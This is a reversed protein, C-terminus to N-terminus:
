PACLSSDAPPFPDRLMRVFGSLLLGGRMEAPLHPAILCLSVTANSRIRGDSDHHLKTLAPVATHALLSPNLKPALHVLARASHERISPTTSSFGKVFHPWIQKNLVEPSVRNMYSSANELLRYHLLRDPTAYLQVLVPSVYRAFEAEEVVREAIGIIPGLVNALVGIQLSEMLKRLLHHVCYRLPFGAVQKSLNDLFSERQSLEMMAMEEAATITQVYCSGTIFEAGDMFRIVSHRVRPSLATLGTFSAQLTRPLHRFGRMEAMSTQRVRQVFAEPDGPCSCDEDAESCGHMHSSSSSISSNSNNNNNNHTSNSPADRVLGLCEYILCAMGWADVLTAFSSCAATESRKGISSNNTHLEPPVHYSLLLSPAVQTYWAFEDETESSTTPVSVAGATLPSTLTNTSDSSYPPLHAHNAHGSSLESPGNASVSTSSSLSTSGMGGFRMSNPQRSLSLSSSPPFNSAAASATSAASHHGASAVVCLLELGFLRWMGSPTVYVNSSCVNGHIRNNKHLAAIAGCVHKLGLAVGKEYMAWESGYYYRRRHSQLLVGDLPECPETAIYITGAHETGGYFRLLGPLMLTRAHQLARRAARQAREDKVRDLACSFITVPKGDEDAIGQQVLWQVGHSTMATVNCAPVVWADETTTRAGAANKENRPTFPFKPISVPFGLAKLLFAM